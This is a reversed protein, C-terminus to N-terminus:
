SAILLKRAARREDLKEARRVMTKKWHKYVLWKVAESRNPNSGDNRKKALSTAIRDLHDVTDQPLFLAIKYAIM